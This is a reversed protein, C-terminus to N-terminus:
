SLGFHEKLLNTKIPEDKKSIQKKVRYMGIQKGNNEIKENFISEMYNANDEHLEPLLRTMPKDIISFRQDSKLLNRYEIITLNGYYKELLYYPNPAPKINKKYDGGYTQNLLHYREFKTSDDINEKMLFAAACEARCFSGYGFFINNIECRPIYYPDNDFNYTCWFCSSKKDHNNKYLKIKLQKLKMNIGIIEKESNSIIESEEDDNMIVKQEPISCESENNDINSEYTTYNNNNYSKFTVPISPNYELPSQIFKMQENNYVDLDLLTCKLHLIINTVQDYKNILNTQNISIKGGRPKRGRKIQVKENSNDVDNSQDLLKKIKPM